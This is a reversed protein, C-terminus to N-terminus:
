KILIESSARETCGRSILINLWGWVKDKAILLEL